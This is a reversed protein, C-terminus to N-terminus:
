IRSQIDSRCITSSAVAPSLGRGPSTHHCYQRSWLAFMPRPKLFITYDESFVNHQGWRVDCSLRAVQGVQARVLGPVVEVQLKSEVELHYTAVVEGARSTVRCLYSGADEPQPQLELLEGQVTVRPGTVVMEEGGHTIRYWRTSPPPSGQGVCVLTVDEGERGRVTQVKTRPVLLSPAVEGQSPAVVVRGATVSRVTIGTLLHRTTCSFASTSHQAVERLLLSGDPLLSSRKGNSVLQSASDLWEEVQVDEVVEPPVSCRLLAPNAPYTVTDRVEARYETETM